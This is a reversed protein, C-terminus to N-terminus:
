YWSSTFVLVNDIEIVAQCPFIEVATDVNHDMRNLM